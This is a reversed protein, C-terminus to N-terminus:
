EGAPPPVAQLTKKGRLTEVWRTAAQGRNVTKLVVKGDKDIEISTKVCRGRLYDLHLYLRGHEFRLRRLMDGATLQDKDEFWEGSVGRPRADHFSLMALTYILPVACHEVGEEEIQMEIEVSFDENGVTPKIETNTIEFDWLTASRILEYEVPIDDDGPM